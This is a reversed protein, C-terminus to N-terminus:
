FNVRLKVYGMHGRSKGQISHEYGGGLEAKDLALTLGAGLKFAGKNPNTKQSIIVQDLQNSINVKNGKRWIAYSYDASAEPMLTFGNTDYFTTVAIGTNLGLEQQRLKGVKISGDKHGKLALSIYSVGLRPLVVISDTSYLKYDALVSGGFLDGKQKASNKASAQSTTKVVSKGFSMNGYLSINDDVNSSGYLTFINSSIKDTDTLLGSLKQKTKLSHNSFAGGITLDENLKTDVGLIFGYLNSKSSIPNRLSGTGVNAKDTESGVFGKFWVGYDLTGEGSAVSTFGGLRHQLHSLRHHTLDNVNIISKVLQRNQSKLESATTEAKPKLLAVDLIDDGEYLLFFHSNRIAAANNIGAIIAKLEDRSLDSVDREAIVILNETTFAGCSSGDTQQRVLLDILEITPDIQQLLQELLQGNANGRLSNGVPDNYIVKITGNQNRKIALAVWHSNGLNVPVLATGLNRAENVSATIIDRVLEQNEFPLAPAIYVNAEDLRTKLVERIDEDEYWYEAHALNAPNVAALANSFSLAPISAAITLGLMLKGVAKLKSGSIKNNYIKSKAM